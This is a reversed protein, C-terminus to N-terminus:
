HASIAEKILEAPANATTASAPERNDESYIIIKGQNSTEPCQFTFVGNAKPKVDFIKVQGFYTAQHQNFADLMFSVNKEGENVNTVYFKYSGDKKLRLTNPVFGKDTHLIVIPQAQELTSTIQDLVGEEIFNKSTKAPASKFSHALDVEFAPVSISFGCLILLLLIIIFGLFDRKTDHQLVNSTWM